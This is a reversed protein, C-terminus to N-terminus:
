WNRSELSKHTLFYFFGSFSLLYILNYNKISGRVFGEYHFPTSLYQFIINLIEIQTANVTLVMLMMGLLVCFTTIAAIIPNETLSSCFLGVWLYSIISFILGLYSSLVTGWDNYGSLGLIIPFVLTWSLIFLSIILGALFKSFIIQSHELNSLFLLDLTQNKKEESFLKMSLLPILFLFLFNINGFLPILISHTLSLMTLNKAGVLYNFFLWGMIGSFLGTLIYILPSFFYDKLEKKLLLCVGNLFNM